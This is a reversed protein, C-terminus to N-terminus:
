ARKPHHEHSPWSFFKISQDEEPELLCHPQNPGINPGFRTRRATSQGIPQGPPAGARVWRFGISHDSTSSLTAGNIVDGWVESGSFEVMDGPMASTGILTFGDIREHGYVLAESRGAMDVDAAMASVSAASIVLALWTKQVVTKQM